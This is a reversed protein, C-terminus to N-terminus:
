RVALIADDIGVRAPTATGIRPQFSRVHGPVLRSVTLGQDLHDVEPQQPMAQARDGPQLDGLSQGGPWQRYWLQGRGDAGVGVREPPHQSQDGVVVDHGELPVPDAEGAAAPQQASIM